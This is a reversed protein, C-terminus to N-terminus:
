ITPRSVTSARPPRTMRSGTSCPYEVLEIMSAPDVLSSRESLRLERASREHSRSTGQSLQLTPRRRGSDHSLQRNRCSSRVEVEVRERKAGQELRGGAPETKTHGALTHAPQGRRRLRQEGGGGRRAVADDEDHRGVRVDLLEGRVRPEEEGREFPTESASAACRPRATGTARSRDTDRGTAASRCRRPARACAARASCRCPAAPRDGRGGASSGRSLAGARKLAVPKTAATRVVLDRRDIEAIAQGLGAVRALIRGVLRALERDAAADDVEIGGARAMRDASSNTPSM